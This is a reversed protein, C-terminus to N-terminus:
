NIKERFIQSLQYKLHDNNSNKIEEIFKGIKWVIIEGKIMGEHNTYRSPFKKHKIYYQKCLEIKEEETIKRQKSHKKMKELRIKDESTGNHMIYNAWNGINYTVNNHTFKTSRVLKDNTKFYEDFLKFKEEKNLKIIKRSEKNNLSNSIENTEIKAIENGTIENNTIQNNTMETKAIEDRVTMIDTKINVTENDFAIADFQPLNNTSNNKLVNNAFSEDSSSYGSSSTDDLVKETYSHINNIVNYPLKNESIQATQSEIFGKRINIGIHKMLNQFTNSM